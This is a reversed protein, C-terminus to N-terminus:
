RTVKQRYEVQIVSRTDIRPGFGMATIRYMFSGVPMGPTKDPVVEILYRPPRAPKLGSGAAFTRCTFSGYAVTPASASDDLFDVSAWTPKATASAAPGCLGREGPSALCAGPTTNYRAANVIDESRLSACSATGSRDIDNEADMVAAEAAEFAIRTDRDHRASMEGLLALRTGAIGVVTVLLLVLMVVVLSAGRERRSPSGPSGHLLRAM